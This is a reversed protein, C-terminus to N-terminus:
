ILVPHGGVVQSDHKSWRQEAWLLLGRVHCGVHEVRPLQDLQHEGVEVAEEGSWPQSLSPCPCRGQDTLWDESAKVADEGSPCRGGDALRDKSLSPLDEAKFVDRLGERLHYEGVQAKLHPLKRSLFACSARTGFIVWLTSTGLM